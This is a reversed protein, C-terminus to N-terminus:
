IQNVSQFGTKTKKFAGVKIWGVGSYYLIKM